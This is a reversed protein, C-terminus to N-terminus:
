LDLNNIQRIHRKEHHGLLELWQILNLKNGNPHPVIVSGFDKEIKNYVVSKLNSRIKELSNRYDEKKLRQAKFLEPAKYKEKDNRMAEVWADSLLRASFNHPAKPVNNMIYIKFSNLLNQEFKLLHGLIEPANWKNDFRKDFSSEPLMEVSRFLEDRIEDLQKFISDILQKQTM